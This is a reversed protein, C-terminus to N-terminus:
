RKHKKYERGYVNEEAQKARKGALPAAAAQPQGKASKAVKGAVRAAKAAVRAAAEADKAAKKAAREALTAEWKAKREKEEAERKEKGEAKAKAREAKDQEGQAKAEEQRQRMQAYTKSTPCMRGVFALAMDQCDMAGEADKEEAKFRAKRVEEAKASLPQLAVVAEPMRGAFAATVLDHAEAALLKGAAKGAAKARALQEQTPALRADAAATGAATAEPNFPVIGALKFGASLISKNSKCANEELVKCAREYYKAVNFETLLECDERCLRELAPKVCGFHCRDLPQTYGTSSPILGMLMIKNKAFLAAVEDNFHIAANDVFILMKDLGQKEKHAVVMHAWIRFTEDDPWGNATKNWRSNSTGECMDQRNIKGGFTWLIEMMPGVAPATITAAVHYNKHTSM